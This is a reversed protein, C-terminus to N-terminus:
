GALRSWLFEYILANLRATHANDVAGGHGGDSNEFYLVQPIGMRQMRAAMKRAQVPGVRDDSTAAYFLVPPYHGDERVLQYPSFTSIYDWEAPDDPDGYEAIWSAGASLHTYRKMDLLPVGCVVAGFLSPYSTLMNGVLLGGNSRGECGLRSPTTVGRSVLDRSIAAFDEFARPRNAKLAATHWAPGFEGGGRINALVFVGGRELWARGVIGGYEPLRSVQFGGYGSLLTPHSGDLALGAVAVQFYPVRTGDDSVAWHQQVELGEADFFAPSSRIVEPAVSGIVGRLVSSPTTFGTSHLWFEDSEDPDTDIVRVTSLGPVGALPSRAWGSGPDLVVLTSAVDVLLTLILRSDTFDWSELATHEDPVFLVDFARDGALFADLRIALLAGTPHVVRGIAWDSRPHVLLWERRLTVDADDPVDIHVLDGAVLLLTRSRYFDLHEIVLDREFGPTHQHIGSVSLDDTTVEHVLEAENIPQGRRLRRVTRPYSSDTMSGPGFDTGLYITDRDIWSYASKATPIIFGDAVFARTELDFERVTAADGGDPSLAVLARTYDHPLLRAGSFVWERGEARGLEDVDLLVDWETDASRYSELTTRRWLGRPHERDRWFNYYHGGRHSVIPIRDDSDIVELLRATLAHFQPSAFQALTEASQEAAWALPAEGHIDELWLNEDHQDASM